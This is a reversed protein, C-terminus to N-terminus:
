RQARQTYITLEDLDAPRSRTVLSVAYGTGVCTLLGIMAYLFFSVATYAQTFYVAAAGAVLGAIAGTSNARRTFMGLVFLGAMSSSLLGVLVNFLDWLSLIEYSAMLGAAGTALTGLITTVWRALNLCRQDTAHPRFRRYFDTVVATSVSNLSSDLTSMSAAFLAAIVLGTVGSPLQQAIFYPFISDNPTAPNLLYPQTKYFVYLTTGLAFWILAEPATIAANTWISRAAQKEDKTTLYRQVVVQDSTYTVLNIFLNGVIMVWLATTTYDWTLNALRFKDDAIGVAWITEVGGEVHFIMIGLSLIAGGLLVIVQLVDTWVVAEIGGMVTYVTSLVGMVLICVYVNLGTVTSLAMAPLYLVIAMRGLQFLIFAASALLRTLANFRRELYEYATTLNLRRYFPLYFYVVLPAVLPIALVNVFYVWDTAYVKAPAAMFTIASLQTGFLSVGAAWWPIRRGALFYDETSRERRSFYVGMVVLAGLYLGLFSYDLTTFSSSPAQSTAALVTPSRHGPRDEGGPIVIRDHWRVANTTVLGEPIAGAPTWTDTITHYALVDRTFGPHSDGLQQQFLEGDDGSFVLIHSPGLASAPAAVIPRPPAAAREWGQGPRYRYGDNLFRRTARGDDGLILEAGSFVYVAGDQAVAVPLIRAPGPWPELAQWQPSAAELDLAWFNKMAETAAPSQQGGVVFITSGLLAASTMACASPLDPLRSQEVAGERYRLRRVERYHQEADAGGILILGSDTSVSAGYALPRDLAFGSKWRSVDSELVFIEKQWVKAGGALPSVPFHSGGAVILADDASGAFAGGLGLPEPLDPLHTWQLASQQALSPACLFLLTLLFRWVSGHGDPLPKRLAASEEHCSRAVGNREPEDPDPLM